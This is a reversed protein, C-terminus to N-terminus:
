ITQIRSEHHNITKIPSQTEEYKLEHSDVLQNLTSDTIHYHNITQYIKVTKCLNFM